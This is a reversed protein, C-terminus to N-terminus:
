IRKTQGRRDKYGLLDPVSPTDAVVLGAAKLRELQEGVLDIRVETQERNKMDVLYEDLKRTGGVIAIAGLIMDIVAKPDKLFLAKEGLVSRWQERIRADTQHSYNASCDLHLSFVHFKESLGQIVEISDTKKPVEDGIVRRLEEADITPYFGEDGIFFYFGKRQAPHQLTCRYRFFYAALQYSEMSQGGGGKEPWIRRLYWGPKPEQEGKENTVKESVGAFEGIQLPAEDSHPHINADGHAVFCVAPDTLYGRMMIQGAFMAMKDRIIKLANGMSGTNDVDVVISDGFNSVLHRGNALLSPDYTRVGEFIEDSEKSFQFGGSSRSSPKVDDDYYGGSM